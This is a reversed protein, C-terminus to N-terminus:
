HHNEEWEDVSLLQTMDVLILANDDRNVTGQICNGLMQYPLNLPASDIESMTLYIVECIADVIFGFQHQGNSMIVIRTDDTIPRHPLQFCLRIDIIKILNGRLHIVGSIWKPADSTPLIAKNGLVEQLQIVNHAYMDDGLRFVLWQSLEVHSSKTLTNLKCQNNM